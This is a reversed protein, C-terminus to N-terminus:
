QLDKWAVELDEGGSKMRISVRKLFEPGGEEPHDERQFAGRSEKRVLSAILVAKLVLLSVELERKFILDSTQFVDLDKLKQGWVEILSLGEKVKRENRVPGAYKWALDRVARLGALIKPAKKTGTAGTLLDGPWDDPISAAKGPVHSRAYESAGHGAKAGFVLCEALSNGGMRNAGHVGGTVEGAAFLGKMNTEGSPGVRVGGMFFHALPAIGFSNKKFDFKKQPFLNLPYEQWKDEHVRTCDMLVKGEQSGKYILYSTRDRLTVVLKDLSMELGHKKLFDNGESDLLRAEEPFPPYIMASPLRSEAFGFPYFQVFEMDILPLGIELAWAYGNGLAKQHNDNRKYIAGGGGTALVTAQSSIACSRGDADFGLIGSVRGEEALIKYVFFHPLFQIQGYKLAEQIMKNVLIRGGLMKVPSNKRDVFYGFPPHVMLDVGVERLFEVEKEGGQALETVLQRDNLGKGIKLTEKIHADGDMTENVVSLGGGALASNSGTMPSKSIVMTKAGNRASEIAARLGALGSGIILVETEFSLV